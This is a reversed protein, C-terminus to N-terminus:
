PSASASAPLALEVVHPEGLTVVARPALSVDGGRGDSLTVEFVHRHTPDVRRPDFPLWHSGRADRPERASAVVRQPVADRMTLALTAGPTAASAALDVLGVHPRLCVEGHRDRGDSGCGDSVYRRHDEWLHVEDGSGRLPRAPDEHIHPRVISDLVYRAIAVLGVPFDNDAYVVKEAGGTRVALVWPDGDEVDPDRDRHGLHLVDHENLKAILADLEPATLSLDSERRERDVSGDPHLAGRYAFRSAGSPTISVVDLGDLGDGIALELSFTGDRAM